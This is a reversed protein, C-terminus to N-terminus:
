DCSENEVQRLCFRDGNSGRMGCRGAELQAPPVSNLLVFDTWNGAMRKRFHDRHHSIGAVQTSLLAISIRKIKVTAFTQGM